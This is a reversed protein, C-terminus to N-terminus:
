SVSVVTHTPMDSWESVNNQNQALWDTSTRRLTTHKASFCCIGITNDKTHGSRPEFESDVASSGLMGVIVGGIRYKYNCFLENLKSFKNKVLV